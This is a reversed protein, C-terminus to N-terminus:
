QTMSLAYTWKESIGLLNEFLKVLKCLLGATYSLAIIEHEWHKTNQNKKIKAIRKPKYNYIENLM